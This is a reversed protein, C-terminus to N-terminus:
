SSSPPKKALTNRHIAAFIRTLEDAETALAAREPALPGSEDLLLLLLWYRSEKAEKRCLKIRYVFDRDGVNENAEIYNAGVSGSARLLQRGDSETSISRPLKRLFQRIRLAFRHTREELDFVRGPSCAHM